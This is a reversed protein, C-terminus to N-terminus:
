GSSEEFGMEAMLQKLKMIELPKLLIQVNKPTSIETKSPSGTLLIVAPPHPEEHILRILEEGSIHPMHRDTIVLDFTDSEIAALAERPDQKSTVRHQEDELFSCVVDLAGPDDDVVLIDLPRIRCDMGASSQVDATGTQLPFLLSVCTGIDEESDIELEAGCSDCLNKVMALGIGTGDKGKTTYFAALCKKKVEPPMGCGTDQVRIVTHFGERKVTVTITGGNPMADTANGLLNVLAERLKPERTLIYLRRTLNTKIQVCPRGDQGSVSWRPGFLDIVTEISDCPDVLRSKEPEHERYFEKMRKVIEAGDRGAKAISELNKKVQEPNNMRNPNMLLLDAFGVIPTLLNNFDHALGSVMQGLAHLREQQIAKDQAEKLNRFAEELDLTKQQLERTRLRVQRRFLFAIVVAFLLVIAMVRAGYKIYLPIRTVPRAGAWKEIIQYYVSDEDTKWKALYSDITSLLENRGEAPAAFHLRTPCFSVMSVKIEPQRELLVALYRNAVLMDVTGKRLMQMGAEYDPMPVVEAHLNLEQIMRSVENQQVSNQLVAIRKSEMDFVSSVMRDDLTVVQFWDSLVPERNLAWMQDREKSFSVDTMLDIEGSDLQQLGEGWSGFVFEIDWSEREAIEQILDVFIGQAEGADGCFVKPRNQYVGVRVTEGHASVNLAFGLLLCFIVPKCMRDSRGASMKFRFKM